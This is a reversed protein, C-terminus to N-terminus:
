DPEPLNGVWVLMQGDPEDPWKIATMTKAARRARHNRCQKMMQEFVNSVQYTGGDAGFTYKAAWAAAKEEWVDAAAAHLDYTEVWATNVVQAPPTASSWTYPYQGNEDLLKYTTIFVTLLTDTYGNADTPEAVMRRLQLIQAATPAM